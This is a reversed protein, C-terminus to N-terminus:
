VSTHVPARWPYAVHHFSLEGDQARILLQIGPDHTQEHFEPSFRQLARIVFSWGALEDDSLRPSGTWRGPQGVPIHGPGQKVWQGIAAAEDQPLIVELQIPCAKLITSLRDGLRNEEDLSYVDGLRHQYHGLNRQTTFGVVPAFFFHLDM